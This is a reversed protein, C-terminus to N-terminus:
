KVTFEGRVMGMWCSFPLKGDEEPTFYVVNDGVEIDKSIGLSPVIIRNTCGNPQEASIIWKVPVGKKLKTTETDFGTPVIKTHVIQIEGSPATEIVMAKRAGVNQSFPNVWTAHGANFITIAFLLVVLGAVKKFIGGNLKSSWASAVGLTLLAPVTGVAFLAMSMGGIWMSGSALAFLQMSQTFGCPLFFSLGGLVFPTSARNSNGMTDWITRIRKPMRIGARAISPALGLINLGLWAMVIAIAINFLAIMNGSIHITGGIAGLAGGLVFFSGIRGIHFATHPRLTSRWTREETTIYKQAFAVVVGGITAMCSSLSAVVGILLAVGFTINADGPAFADLAGTKLMMRYVVTGMVIIGVATIWERQVNGSVVCVACHAKKQEQKIKM